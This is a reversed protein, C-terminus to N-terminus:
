KGSYGDWLKVSKDFSASAFWRGDPSFCVHNVLQQHGTLRAIPQAQETPYWFCLTFDDSGSVLREKEGRAQLYRERSQVQAEGVDMSRHGQFDFPGMRMVHETSLAMSNIWHAHGKLIRVLTGDQANWVRITQDRSATYLFGEGSWKVCTVAGTHQSLIFDPVRTRTNWVRVTGDKSATALRPDTPRLHFPEWAISTIWQTHGQLHAMPEGSRPDWLWVGKDM